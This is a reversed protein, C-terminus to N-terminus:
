KFQKQHYRGQARHLGGIQPRPVAVARRGRVPLIEPDGRVRGPGGGDRDAAQEGVPHVEGGIGCMRGHNEQAVFVLGVKISFRGGAVQLVVRRLRCLEAHGGRDSKQACDVERPGASQLRAAGHAGRHEPARHVAPGHDEPVRGVRGDRQRGDQAAAGVGCAGGRRRAARPVRRAHVSLVHARVAKAACGAARRAVAAVADDALGQPTFHAACGDAATCGLARARCRVLRVRDGRKGGVARIVLVDGVGQTSILWHTSHRIRRSSM